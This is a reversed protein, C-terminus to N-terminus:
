TVLTRNAKKHIDCVLSWCGDPGDIYIDPYLYIDIYLYYIIIIYMKTLAGEVSIYRHTCM